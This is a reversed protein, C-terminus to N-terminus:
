LGVHAPTYGHTKRVGVHFDRSLFTRRPMLSVDTPAMAVLNVHGENLQPVVAEDFTPTRVAVTVHMGGPAYPAALHHGEVIGERDHARFRQSNPVNWGVSSGAVFSMRQRGMLDDQFFSVQLGLAVLQLRSKGKLWRNLM